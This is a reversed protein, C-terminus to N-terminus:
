QLIQMGPYKQLREEAAEGVVHEETSSELIPIEFFDGSFWRVKWNSVIWELNQCVTECRRFGKPVLSFRVIM